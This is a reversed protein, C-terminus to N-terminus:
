SALPFGAASLAHLFPEPFLGEATPVEITVDDDDDNPPRVFEPLGPGILAEDRIQNFTPLSTPAPFSLSAGAFVFLRKPDVQPAGERGVGCPDCSTMVVIEDLTM